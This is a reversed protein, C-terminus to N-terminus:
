HVDQVKLIMVRVPKVEADNLHMKLLKKLRCILHSQELHQWRDEQQWIVAVSTAGAVIEIYIGSASRIGNAALYEQYVAEDSLKQEYIKTGTADSGEQIRVHCTAGRPNITVGKLYCVPGVVDSGGTVTKVTASAETYFQKVGTPSM